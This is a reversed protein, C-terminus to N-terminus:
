STSHHSSILRSFYSRSLRRASPRTQRSEVPWHHDRLIESYDKQTNMIALFEAALHPLLHGSLLLLLMDYNRSVTILDQSRSVREYMNDITTLVCCIDADIHM